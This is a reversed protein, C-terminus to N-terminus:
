IRNCHRGREGKLLVVPGMVHDAQDTLFCYRGMLLRKVDIACVMGFSPNTYSVPVIILLEMQKASCM